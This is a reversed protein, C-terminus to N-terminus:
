RTNRSILLKNQLEWTGKSIGDKFGREYSCLMLTIQEARKEPNSDFVSQGICLRESQDNLRGIRFFEGDELVLIDVAGKDKIRWQNM